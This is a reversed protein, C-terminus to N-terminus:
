GRARFMSHNRRKQTRSAEGALLEEAQQLLRQRYHIPTFTSMVREQAREAM